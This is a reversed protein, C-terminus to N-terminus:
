RTRYQKTKGTPYIVLVRAPKSQLIFVKLEANDSISNRLKRDSVIVVGNQLVIWGENTIKEIPFNGLRMTGRDAATQSIQRIPDDIICGSLLFLCVVLIASTSRSRRESVTDVHIM